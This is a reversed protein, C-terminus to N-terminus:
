SSRPVSRNRRVYRDRSGPNTRPLTCLALLRVIFGLDPELEGAEILANIQDNRNWHHIAQPTLAPANTAGIRERFEEISRGVERKRERRALQREKDDSKTM